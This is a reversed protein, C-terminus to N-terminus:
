ARVRRFEIHDEALARELIAWTERQEDPDDHEWAELLDIVAQNRRMQDRRREEEPTDAHTDIQPM